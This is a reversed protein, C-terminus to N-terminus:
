GNGWAPICCKKYKKGSECPCGDNRGPRQKPMIYERRLDQEPNGLMRAQWDQIGLHRATRLADAWLSINAEYTYHTLVKTQGQVGRLQRAEPDDILHQLAQRWDQPGEALFGGVGGTEEHYRNYPAVKSAVYPLQRAGYELLKLCSKGRNFPTNIIPALGIDFQALLEPYQEFDVPDLIVVQEEPLDLAQLFKDVVRVASALAFVTQPNQRLVDRLCGQLPAWDDNHTISGAWGIVTKGELRPDRAVPGAWNRLNHDICNPLVWTRAAVNRFEAALEVTTTFFGDFDQLCRDVMRLAESGPRFTGYAHSTPHVHRVDDDLEYIVTKGFDRIEMLREWNGREHQRQAIIIDFENLDALNFVSTLKVTAGGQELYHLPYKIRYHGCAGSDAM